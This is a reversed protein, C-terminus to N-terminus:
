RSPGLHESAWRSLVYLAWPRTWNVMGRLFSDWIREAEGADWLNGPNSAITSEVERRLPGRLWLQFPLTFPTKKRQFVEAPLAQGFSRRLWLKPGRAFGKPGSPTALLRGALVHDVLPVRLELSHAMSMQDSDRLLTNAMYTRAELLSIQNLPDM